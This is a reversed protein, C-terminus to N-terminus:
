YILDVRGLIEFASSYLKDLIAGFVELSGNHDSFSHRPHLLETSTQEM